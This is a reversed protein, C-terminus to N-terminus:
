FYYCLERNVLGVIIDQLEFYNFKYLNEYINDKLIFHYIDRNRKVTIKSSTDLLNLFSEKRIYFDLIGYFDQKPVINLVEDHFLKVM